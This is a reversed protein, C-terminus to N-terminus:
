SANLMSEATQPSTADCASHAQILEGCFRLKADSRLAELAPLDGENGAMLLERWLHPDNDWRLRMRNASEVGLTRVQQMTLAAICDAVVPPMAFLMSAVCCDARAVQWGFMLAELALWNWRGATASGDTHGRGHQGNSAAARWWNVDSFRLDVIVFPFLSLRRQAIPDLTRWQNRYSAIVPISDGSTGDVALECLLEIFQQNLHHALTISGAGKWRHQSLQKGHEAHGDGSDKMKASM